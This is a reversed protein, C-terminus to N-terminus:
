FCDGTNQYGTFALQLHGTANPGPGPRELDPQQASYAMGTGGEAHLRHPHTRVTPQRVFLCDELFVAGHSVPTRYVATLKGWGCDPSIGGM